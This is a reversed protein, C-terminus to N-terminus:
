HRISKTKSRITAESTFGTTLYDVLAQMSAPRYSCLSIHLAPNPMVDRDYPTGTSVILIPTHPFQRQLTQYLEAQSAYILPNFTVLVIMDPQDPYNDLINAADFEARPPYTLSELQGFGAQRLLNDLPESTPVDFAYNGMSERSPHIFLVNANPAIPLLEPKGYLINIGQRAIAEAQAECTAPTFAELQLSPKSQTFYAQKLALIRELSQHLQERPLTGNQFAEVVAAYVEWEDATSQKYLLIDVGAKLSAIAAEVPSRHKTIAGM